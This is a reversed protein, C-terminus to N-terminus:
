LQVLTKQIETADMINIKENKDVDAVSLQKDNFSVNDVLYRQLETADKISLNWDLDVDGLILDKETWQAYMTVVDNNYSTTMAIGAKNNYLFKYYGEPQEGEVCWANKTGNTYLWKNDYARHAYWGVFDYGVKKFQNETLRTTQGYVITLDDMTGIGGNSDFKVKFKKNEISSLAKFANLRGGTKVKGDLFGVEDVNNLIASKVEAASLNPYKSWILAAVGTVQPTAMSTGSKYDYSKGVTSLIDVGPAVLDVSVSGYNSSEALFDFYDCSAVSIINGSTYEAPYQNFNSELDKSDNGAACIFLGKYNRIANELAEDSGEGGGSFNLLKINNQKAYEIAKVIADTKGNGSNDFVRLSVLSIDWCVGTIGISNNGEAGIIGAVHTGHNEGGSEYTPYNVFSTSLKEDYRSILDPNDKDIGTDIVGVKLSHSGKSLNWADNLQMKEIAYQENKCTDNSVSECKYIYNPQASLVDDRKELEEITSQLSEEDSTSLSIELIQNFSSESVSQVNSDDIEINNERQEKIRKTSYETLNEVDDAEIEDFDDVTYDNLELSAENTLAVIISDLAYSVDEDTELVEDSTSLNLLEDDTTVDSDIVAESKSTTSNAFVPMLANLLIVCVLILSTSLKFKISKM